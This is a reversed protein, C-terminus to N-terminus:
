NFVPKAPKRPTQPKVGITAIVPNSKKKRPTPNASASASEQEVSSQIKKLRLVISDLDAEVKQEDELIQKLETQEQTASAHLSLGEKNEADIMELAQSRAKERMHQKELIKLTNTFM